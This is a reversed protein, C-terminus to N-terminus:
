CDFAPAGGALEGEVVLGVVRGNLGPQARRVQGDGHRGLLDLGGAGGFARTADGDYETGAALCLSALTNSSFAKRKSCPRSWVAGTGCAYFPFGRTSALVHISITTPTSIWKSITITGGAGGTGVGNGLGNMPMTVRGRGAEGDAEREAGREGAGGAALRRARHHDVRHEGRVDAGLGCFRAM